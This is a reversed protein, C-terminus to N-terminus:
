LGPQSKYVPQLWFWGDAGSFDEAAAAGGTAVDAAASDAGAAEGGGDAGAPGAVLSPSKGPKFVAILSSFRVDLVSVRFNVTILVESLLKLM